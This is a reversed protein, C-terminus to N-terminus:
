TWGSVIWTCARECEHVSVSVNMFLSLIKQTMRREHITVIGYGVNTWEHVTVHGNMFSYYGNMFACPQVKHGATSKMFPYFCIATRSHYSFLRHGNMFMFYEHEPADFNRGMHSHCWLVLRTRMQAHVSSSYMFPACGYMYPLNGHEPVLM